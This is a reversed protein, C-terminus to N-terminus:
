KDASYRRVDQMLQSVLERKSIEDIDRLQSVSNIISIHTQITDKGMTFSNLKTDIVQGKSTIIWTPSMHMGGVRDFINFMIYTGNSTVGKYACFEALDLKRRRSIIKGQLIASVAVRAQRNLHLKSVPICNESTATTPVVKQACAPMLGATVVLCLLFNGTKIM